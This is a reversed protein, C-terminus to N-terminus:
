QLQKMEAQLREHEEPTNINTFTERSSSFDALAMKHLAYWRDIKRDGSQLFGMLSDLLNVPLLAHVPQLRTGDHAVALESQQEHLASALKQVYDDPIFPGDCPLTVIYETGANQMAVAFGALPGQFDDMDDRIVPYGLNEYKDLNRNANILIGGVQPKIANLIHNILPHDNFTMLGKDTGALRRGKGGALIVATIDQKKLM